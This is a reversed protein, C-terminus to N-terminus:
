EEKQDYEDFIKGVIREIIDELTVLGVTKKHDDVVVAIAQGNLQLQKFISAIIEEKHVLTIPRLFKRIDIKVEKNAAYDLVIDKVNIMGIIHNEDKEYVPIRTYPNEKIKALISEVEEDADILVLKDKPKMINKVLVDNFKLTNFLIGKEVSNVIGQDKGESITMKIEKETLRNDDNSSIGFLAFFVRSSM